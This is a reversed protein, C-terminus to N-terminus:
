NQRWFFLVFAPTLLGWTALGYISQFAPLSLAPYPYYFLSARDLWPALFIGIAAVASGSVLWDALRLPTPRYVTRPQGRGIWWFGSLLVAVGAGILWSGSASGPRGLQLALGGVIALLSALLGLRVPLPNPQRPHNAFGRATMAEALHLARELGSLLLPLFLPGWDRLGRLQQGRVAQAERIAQIQRVTLPAFTLAITIVVALPYYARPVLGVIARVPLVQNVLVVLAYIATLVLGNLAGYTLSELTIPGGILPISPPLRWLITAGIHVNLANILMTVPIVFLGLRWPSILPSRYTTLGVLRVTAGIVGIWILIFLLYFPNRTISLLTLGALLWLAWSLPHLPQRM